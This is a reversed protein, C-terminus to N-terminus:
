KGSMFVKQLWNPLLSTKQYRLFEKNLLLICNIDLLSSILSNQSFFFVYFIVLKFGM